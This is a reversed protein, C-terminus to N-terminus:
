KCVMDEDYIAMNKVYAQSEGNSIVFDGESFATVAAAPITFLQRRHTISKNNTQWVELYLKNGILRIKVTMWQSTDIAELSGSKNLSLFADKSPVNNSKANAPDAKTYVVPLVEGSGLPDQNPSLLTISNAMVNSANVKDGAIALGFINANSALKNSSNYIKSNKNSHFMFTTIGNSASDARYDFQWEFYGLKTDKVKAGALIGGTVKNKALTTENENSYVENNLPETKPTYPDNNVIKIDDLDYNIGYGYLYIAGREYFQDPDNYSLIKRGDIYLTYVHGRASVKIESWRGTLGLGSARDDDPFYASAATSSAVNGSTAVFNNSTLALAANKVAIASGRPGIDVWITNNNYNAFDARVGVALYSWNAAFASKFRIKATFDFNRIYDSGFHIRSQANTGTVDDPYGTRTGIIRLFSNGDEETVIGSKEANGTHWTLGNMNRDDGEFDKEFIVGTPGLQVLEEDLNYNVDSHIRINDIDYDSGWSYLAFGGKEYLKEADTAAVVLLGDIYVSIAYGDSVINVRHWEGDTHIGYNYDHKPYGSSADVPGSLGLQHNAINYGLKENIAAIATGRQLIQTVYSNELSTGNTHHRLSFYFRRVNNNATVRVDMNITFNGVDQPGFVLHSKGDGVNDRKVSLYTNDGDKELTCSGSLLQADGMGNEFDLTYFPNGIQAPDKSTVKVDDISFPGKNVGFYILGSSLPASDTYTLIPAPKQSGVTYVYVNIEGNMKSVFVQYNVANKFDFSKSAVQTEGKFLNVKGNQRDLSLKYESGYIYHNFYADVRANKTGTFSAVFSLDFNNFYTKGDVEAPNSATPYSYNSKPYEYITMNRFTRTTNARDYTGDMKGGHTVAFDGGPAIALSEAPLTFVGSVSANGRTVTISLERGILKAKVTIYQDHLAFDPGLELFSNDDSLTLGVTNQSSYSSYRKKVEQVSYAVANLPVLEGGKDPDPVLINIANPRLGDEPMGLKPDYSAHTSYNNKNNSGKIVIAFCNKINSIKDFDSLVTPNEDRTTDVNFLFAERTWIAHTKADFTWEFEEVYTVDSEALELLNNTYGRIPLEWFKYTTDYRLTVNNEWDGNQTGSKRQNGTLWNTPLNSSNLLLVPEVTTDAAFVFPISLLSAVVLTASLFVSLIKKM